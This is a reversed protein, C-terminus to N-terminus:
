AAAAATLAAAAAATLSRCDLRWPSRCDLRWPSRCALPRSSSSMGHKDSCGLPPLPRPKRREAAAVAAAAAGASPTRQCQCAAAPAAPAAAAADCRCAATAAAGPAAAAATALAARRAAPQAAQEAALHATRITGGVEACGTFQQILKNCSHMCRCSMRQLLQFRRWFLLGPATCKLAHAPPTSEHMCPSRPRALRSSTCPRLLSHAACATSPLHHSSLPPTKPAPAGAPGPRPECSVAPFAQPEPPQHLLTSHPWPAPLALKSPARLAAAADARVAGGGRARAAGPPRGGPLRPPLAPTPQSSPRAGLPQHM